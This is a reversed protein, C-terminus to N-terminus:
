QLHARADAQMTEREGDANDRQLTNTGNVKTGTTHCRWEGRKDEHAKPLPVVTSKGSIVAGQGVKRQQDAESDGLPALM